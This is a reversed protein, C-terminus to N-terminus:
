QHHLILNVRGAHSIDQSTHPARGARDSKEKKPNEQRPDARDESNLVFLKSNCVACHCGVFVTRHSQGALRVSEKLRKLREQSPPHRYADECRPLFALGLLNDLELVFLVQVHMCMRGYTCQNPAYLVSPMCMHVWACIYGHVYTGMCMHVSSSPGACARACAYTRLAHLYAGMCMHVWACIYGHAYTGM